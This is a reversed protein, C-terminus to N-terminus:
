GYRASLNALYDSLQLAGNRVADQLDNVDQFGAQQMVRRAVQRAAGELDSLSEVGMIGEEISEPEEEIGYYQNSSISTAGSFGQLRSQAERQATPDYSNRGFYQDSSIAKQSSFKERAYTSDDVPEDLGKAKRVAQKRAAEAQRAAEEGSMGAVQGFGLRGMGMGLRDVEASPRNPAAVKSQSAANSKAVPASVAALSVARSEEEERKSDYGLQKIREEEERAKKEAEEFNITGGAKKAGLKARGGVGAGTTRTAGLKSKATGSASAARLASSSTTRSAPPGAASSPAATANTGGTASSAPSPATNTPTASRPTAPRSPHPSLGIVPPTAPASLTPTRAAPEKDWTDFFDANGTATHGNAQTAEQHSPLGELFVRQGYQAEDVKAKRALEDRYLQAARSTYKDKINTSAAPSYAGPHKALFANFAANGGVKMVRLQAWQWQDLNTSRVFSIHVGMNRHNSSCDLCIYVGFTASAWTPARASCDFCTKNAPQGRLIKFIDDSEQKTAYAM